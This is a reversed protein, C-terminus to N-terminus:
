ISCVIRLKKKITITIKRYKRMFTITFDQIFSTCNRTSGEKKIWLLSTEILWVNRGKLLPIKVWEIRANLKRKLRIISPAEVERLLVKRLCQYKSKWFITKLNSLYNRLTLHQCNGGKLVKIKKVEKSSRIWNLKQNFSCCEKASLLSRRRELMTTKLICTRSAKSM